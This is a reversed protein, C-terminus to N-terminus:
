KMSYGNEATDPEIDFMYNFNEQSKKPIIAKIRVRERITEEIYKDIREEMMRILHPLLVCKERRGYWAVSIFYFLTVGFLVILLPSVGSDFLYVIAGTSLGFVLGPTIVNLILQHRKANHYEKMFSDDVTTSRIFKTIECMAAKLAKHKNGRYKRLHKKYVQNIDM